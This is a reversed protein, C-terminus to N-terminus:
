VTELPVHVTVRVGTGPATDIQIRGHHQEVIRQAIVLGLGTGGQKTTFYPTFVQRQEEETMGPGSDAVTIEAASEVQQLSISLAGRGAMADLSNAILNVLVRHLQDPDAQVPPVDALDLSLSVEQLKPRFLRIAKEIVERLDTQQFQPEPMRAFDSFEQVIRRIKEVEELITDASENFITDFDPHGREYVKRLTEVSIQIPSLPNKIEHAIKRAIGQWAAVRESRTLDARVQELEGTMRNFSAFIEGLEDRRDVTLRHAFEGLAVLEFGHILSRLPTAVGRAIFVGLILSLLLGAGAAFLFTRWLGGVEENLEKLPYLYLVASQPQQARDLVVAALRFMGAETSITQPSDGPLFGATTLARAIAEQSSNEATVSGDIGDWFFIGIRAAARFRALLSRDLPWGAVVTVDGVRHVVRIALTEGDALRVAGILHGGGPAPGIEQWHLDQKGAFVPWELSSLVVGRADLFTLFTFGLNLDRNLAEAFFPDAVEGTDGQGSSVFRAFAESASARTLREQIEGAIGDVVDGTRDIAAQLEEGARDRFRREAEGAAFLTILAAPVLAVIIFWFILKARITM